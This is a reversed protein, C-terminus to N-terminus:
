PASRPDGAIGAVLGRVAAARSGPDSWPMTSGDPSTLAHLFFEVNGDSGRLPSVMLGMMSAGEEIAADIMEDLVRVWVEPDRIVGRGRSVDSRGAEFQPKVLLLLPSQPATVSLIPGLARRLSIFSLDAVAGDVPAGVLESTLDRVHTREHVAVREDRRLRDHLQARGVDVAVVESAGHQLLCDTFGGTSSGVDLWRGQPRIAFHELAGALKDGGRSVYRAPPGSVVVAEGAAVQRDPKRTPAGSVTVRGDLM